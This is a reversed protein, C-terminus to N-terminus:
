MAFSLKKTKNDRLLEIDMAPQSSAKKFIQYAKQKNTLRHGNVRRIIDGNRLGLAKAIGKDELGTIRLGEVEGDVIYPEIVAKKLVGESDGSKVGVTTLGVGVATDPWAPPNTNATESINKAPASQAGDAEQRRSQGMSINLIKRQGNHLLVVADKKITEIRADAVTDGQRYLGLENTELDKIIARSVPPSGCITGYLALGLEKGDSRVMDSANNSRFSTNARLSSGKGSFINQEIIASYNEPSIEAAGTAEVVSTNESSAASTPAFIEGSKKLTIVTRVIVASLMLILTLKGIYFVKCLYLKDGKGTYVCKTQKM